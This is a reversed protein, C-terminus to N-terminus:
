YYKIGCLNEEPGEPYDYCDLYDCFGDDNPMYDMYACNCNSQTAFQSEKLYQLHYYMNEEYEYDLHDYDHELDIEYEMVDNIWEDDMEDILCDIFTSEYEIREAILKEDREELLSDELEFPYELDFIYKDDRYIENDAIQNEYKVAMYDVEEIQCSQDMSHFQKEYQLILYDFEERQFIPEMSLFDQEYAEREEIMKEARLLEVDDILKIDNYM